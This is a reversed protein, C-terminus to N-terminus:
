IRRPAGKLWCFLSYSRSRSEHSFHLELCMVTKTSSLGQSLWFITEPPGSLIVFKTNHYSLIVHSRNHYLPAPETDSYRLSVISLDYYFHYKISLLHLLHSPGVPVVVLSRFFYPPSHRRSNKSPHEEAKQEGEYVNEEEGRDTLKTSSTLMLLFSQILSSPISMRVPTIRPAISLRKRYMKRILIDWIPPIPPSPNAVAAMKRTM